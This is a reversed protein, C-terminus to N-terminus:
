APLVLYGTSKIDEIREAEERKATELDALAYNHLAALRNVEDWAERAHQFALRSAKDAYQSKWEEARNGVIEAYACAASLNHHAETVKAQYSEVRANM